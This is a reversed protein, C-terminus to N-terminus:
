QNRVAFIKVFTKWFHEKLLRKNLLGGGVMFFNYFEENQNTAM